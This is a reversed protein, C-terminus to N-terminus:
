RHIDGLIQLYKCLRDSRSSNDIFMSLYSDIGVCNILLELLFLMMIFFVISYMYVDSELSPDILQWIDTGFLALFTAIAVTIVLPRTALLAVWWAGSKFTLKTTEEVETETTEESTGGGGAAAPGTMARHTGKRNTLGAFATSGKRLMEM